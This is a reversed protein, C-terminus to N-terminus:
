LNNLKRFNDVQHKAQKLDLGTFDKHEKVSQLYEGNIIHHITKGSLNDPNKYEVYFYTSMRKDITAKFIELEEKSAKNELYINVTATHKTLGM